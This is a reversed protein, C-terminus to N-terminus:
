RTTRRPCQERWLQAAVSADGLEALRHALAAAGECGGVAGLKAARALVQARLLLIDEPVDGTDQMYYSLWDPKAPMLGALAQQGEPNGEMPDLLSRDALLGPQQRLMADLRQAAVRYDGVALARGMWYRQTLPVRWGMQGAVRFAADAGGADGRMERAGGLIATATPEIPAGRVFAEGLDLGTQWDGALMANLGRVELAKSAFPTPVSEALAPWRGSERDLGSGLAVIGYAVCALSAAVRIFWATNTTM